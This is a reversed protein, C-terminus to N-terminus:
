LRRGRREVTAIIAALHQAQLPDARAEHMHRMASGLDYLAGERDLERLRQIARELRLVGLDLLQIGHDNSMGSVM